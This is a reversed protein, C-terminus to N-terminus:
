SSRISRVLGALEVAARAADSGVNRGDGSQARARAQEVNECTVLGFGVPVGFDQQVRMIGDTAAGCVYDYHSTEGRIVCGLAVIGAYHRTEALERAALPLEVAGPVTVAKIHEAKAGADILTQVAGRFLADTIEGNFRATVIAWRAAAASTSGTESQVEAHAFTADAGPAHQDSEASM